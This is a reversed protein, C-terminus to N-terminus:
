LNDLNVVCIMLVGTTASIIIMSLCLGSSSVNKVPTLRAPRFGLDRDIISHLHAVKEM